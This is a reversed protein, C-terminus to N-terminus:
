RSGGGSGGILGERQVGESGGRCGEKRDPVGDGGGEGVSQGVCSCWRGVTGM